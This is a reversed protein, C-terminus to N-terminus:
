ENWRKQPPKGFLLDSPRDNIRGMFSDLTESAQRLNESTARVETTISQVKGMAERLNMGKLESELGAMLIRTGKLTERAETLIQELTGMAMLKDMRQSINKLNGSAAEVNALITEMRKGRFFNEIEAATSKLQNYIGQIDIQTIKDVTLAVGAM